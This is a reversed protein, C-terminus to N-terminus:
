RTCMHQLVALSDQWAGMKAYSHLLTNFSILTPSCPYLVCLLVRLMRMAKVPQTTLCSPHM